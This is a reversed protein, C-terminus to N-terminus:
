KGKKLSEEVIRQCLEGYGIGVAAAEQPVLSTPTMGPLTNIELFYPIGDEAVIFDARALASLGLTHFAELAYGSLKETIEQSIDAPCIEKALNPTYKNAIDYFGDEVIIEIPPLAREGLIAVQIERGKIFEELVTEGGLSISEELARKLGQKDHVISVGISSGSALPKVVVPFVTEELLEGMNETLVRVKRWKATPIKDCILRKTLDKDMALASSLYDSGTFSIGELELLAQLRGDEGCAGHLALYVIDAGRCLEVVGKGVSVKPNGGNKKKFEELKKMDPISTDVKKYHEPVAEVSLKEFSKTVDFYLDVLAVTDGLGRLAETVMAGSTLSVHREPSYGGALVVIKM